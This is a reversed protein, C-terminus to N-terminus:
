TSEASNKIKYRYLLKKRKSATNHVTLVIKGAEGIKFSGKLVPEDAAVLKREKQVIVTYGDESRPVFEAGYTVEWGLVRLEWVLLCKQLPLMVNRFAHLKQIVIAQRTSPKVAIETVADSSTFDPDNEKSLGGYRVPVQEPAIYRILHISQADPCGFLPPTLHLCFVINVSAALKSLTEATNSPRAFVFKSRTRQTFFPSMM